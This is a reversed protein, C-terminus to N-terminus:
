NFYCVCVCVYVPVSVCVSVCLKGMTTKGMSQCGNWRSECRNGAKVGIM